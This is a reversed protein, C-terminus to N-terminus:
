ATDGTSLTPPTEARDGYSRDASGQRPPSPTATSLSAVDIDHTFPVQALTLVSGSKSLVDTECMTETAWSGTLMRSFLLDKGNAFEDEATDEFCRAKNSSDCWTEGGM